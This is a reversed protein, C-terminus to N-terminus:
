IVEVTHTRTSIDVPFQILIMIETATYPSSPVNQVNQQM